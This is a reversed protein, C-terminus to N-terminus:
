YEEILIGKAKAAKEIELWLARKKYNGTVILKGGEKIRNIHEVKSIEMFGNREQKDVFQRYELYNGAFVYKMNYFRLLINNLNNKKSEFNTQM